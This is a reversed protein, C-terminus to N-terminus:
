DFGKLVFKAWYDKQIRDIHEKLSIIKQQEQVDIKEQIKLDLHSTKLRPFLGFYSLKDSNFLYFKEKTNPGLFYDKSAPIMLGNSDLDIREGSQFVVIQIGLVHAVLEIELQGVKEKYDIRIDKNGVKKNGMRLWHQYDAVSMPVLEAKGDVKVQHMNAIYSEYKAANKPVNLFNAMANRLKQVLDKKLKEIEISRNELSVPVKNFLKFDWCLLAALNSLLCEHGPIIEHSIHFQQKFLAIAENVNKPVHKYTLKQKPHSELLNFRDESPKIFPCELLERNLNRFVEQYSTQLDELKYTIDFAKGSPNFQKDIIKEGKFAEENIKWPVIPIAVPAPRIIPKIKKIEPMAIELGAHELYSPALVDGMTKDAAVGLQGILTCIADVLKVREDDKRSMFKRTAILDPHDDSILPELLLNLVHNREEENALRRVAWAAEVPAIGFPLEDELTKESPALANRHEFLIRQTLIRAGNSDIKYTQARYPRSSTISVTGNFKVCYGTCDELQIEAGSILKFMAFSLIARKRKKYEDNGWIEHSENLNIKPDKSALKLLEKFSVDFAKGIVAQLTNLEPEFRKLKHPDDPIIYEKQANFIKAYEGEPDTRFEGEVYGDEERKVYLPAIPGLDAQMRQAEGWEMQANSLLRINSRASELQAKLLSEREEARRLESLVKAKDHTLTNIQASQEQLRYCFNNKQTELSDITGRQHRIQTELELKLRDGKEKEVKLLTSYRQLEENENRLRNFKAVTDAYKISIQGQDTSDLIDFREKLIILEHLRAFLAQTRDVHTTISKKIENQIFLTKSQLYIITPGQSRYERIWGYFGVTAINLFWHGLFKLVDIAVTTITRVYTGSASCDEKSFAYVRDELDKLADNALSANVEGVLFKDHFNKIEEELKDWKKLVQQIKISIAQQDLELKRIVRQKSIATIPSYFGLTLINLFLFAFSNKSWISPTRPPTFVADHININVPISFDTM